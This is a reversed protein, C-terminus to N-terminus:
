RNERIDFVFADIRPNSCRTRGLKFLIQGSPYGDEMMIMCYCVYVKDGYQYVEYLDYGYMVLVKERKYPDNIIRWFGAKGTISYSGESRSETFELVMDGVKLGVTNGDHAIKAAIFHAALEKANVFGTYDPIEGQAYVSQHIPPLAEESNEDDSQDEIEEIDSDTEVHKTTQFSANCFSCLSLSISAHIQSSDFEKSCKLCQLVYQQIKAAPLTVIRVDEDDADASLAKELGAISNDGTDNMEISSNLQNLISICLYQEFYM